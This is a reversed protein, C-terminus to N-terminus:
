VLREKTDTQALTKRYEASGHRKAPPSPPPAPPQTDNEKTSDQAYHRLLEGLSQGKIRDLVKTIELM